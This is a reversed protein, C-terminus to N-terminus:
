AAPGVTLLGGHGTVTADTPATGTCAYSGTDILEMADEEVGATAGAGGLQFIGFSLETGAPMAAPNFTLTPRVGPPLNHNGPGLFPYVSVVRSFGAPAPDSSCFSGATVMAPIGDEALDSQLTGPDVLVGVNITLTVMGNPHSVLTFAVTRVTGTSRAPASGTVGSLCFVAATVALAGVVSLGMLRRRQRSRPTVPSTGTAIAATLRARGVALRASPPEPVDARLRAVFDLDNM